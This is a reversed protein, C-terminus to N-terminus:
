VWIFTVRCPQWKLGAQATAEALTPTSTVGSVTPDTTSRSDGLVSARRDQAAGLERDQNFLTVGRNDYGIEKLSSATNRKAKMAQKEPDNALNPLEKTERIWEPSLAREKEPLDYFRRKYDRYWLLFQLNEANHEVYVLYDM